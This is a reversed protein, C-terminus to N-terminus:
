WREWHLRLAAVPRERIASNRTRTGAATATATTKLTMPNPTVTFGLTM